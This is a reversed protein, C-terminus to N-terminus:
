KVVRRCFALAQEEAWFVPRAPWAGGIFGLHGGAQPFEAVLFPNSAVSPLVRAPVLPDDQANMLLTPRRIADLFPRCSAAAWYHAADAFGHLPATVLEDFEVVTRVAALRRRDVLGPYRRLKAMTKRKLSHVLCRMYVRNWVGREFERASAALDFPASIAVAAKLNAPARDAQEGLYKLLVNGGLSLGVCCIAQQPDSAALRQIVWGLDATDGGHYSRKLRNPTGSCSRFNVALGHWGPRHAARLLGRVHTSASSSELGHLVVLM